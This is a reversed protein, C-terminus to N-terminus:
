EYAGYSQLLAVVEEHGENQALKFATEGDKNRRHPDAGAWLLAKVSDVHGGAAAAMLPTKGEKNRADVRAGAELLARVVESESEAAAVHLASDGEEDRLNVKAGAAVLLNVIEATAADGLGMLATQRSRSRVNPDAGSYLLLRVLEVKGASVAAALATTDVAKDLANVDAGAALLNRVEGEDDGWIASVLPTEPAVVIAGGMTLEGVELTADVREEAGDRLFVWNREFADFGQASITLTYAGAEVNQFRYNGEDDSAATQERGTKRNVLVITAAPIVAQQVDFVTGALSSTQGDHVLARGLTAGGAPQVAAPQNGEAPRASQAVATSALSLTATFAGAAIRSLRRKIHTLPEAREATQVTGDPRRYYRVCLKGQSAAVLKMADKATIKSLDHVHLSCHRCFRVQENGIMEDWSAPCPSAIHIRDLAGTPKPM